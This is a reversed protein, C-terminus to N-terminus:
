IASRVLLYAQLLELHFVPANRYHFVRRELVEGTRIRDVRMARHALLVIQRCRSRRRLAALPWHSCQATGVSLDILDVPVNPCAHPLGSHANLHAQTLGGGPLEM